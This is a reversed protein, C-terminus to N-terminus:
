SLTLKGGWWRSTFLMLSFVDNRREETVPKISFDEQRVAESQNDTLAPIRHRLTIRPSLAM